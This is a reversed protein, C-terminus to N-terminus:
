DTDLGAKKLLRRLESFGREGETAYTLKGAPDIVLYTPFVGIQYARPMENESTLAITYPHPHESLFKRVVARDEDVSVGIITLNTRHYKQYLKDLSPGDARCAGCWTAWFDLLVTRGKLESLKISEGQLGTLVLEPAAKGALQKKIRDANWAALEKVENAGPPVHFLSEEVAGNYSMRKLFCTTDSQYERRGDDVNQITRSSILLGTLTDAFLRTSGAEIKMIRNGYVRMWPKIPVDIVACEHDVNTLGCPRRDREIAKSLDLHEIDYPGPQPLEEKPSRKRRVYEDEGQEFDFRNGGDFITVHDGAGSLSRERWRGAACDVLISWKSTQNQQEIKFTQSVEFEQHFSNLAARKNQLEKWTQAGNEAAKPGAAISAMVSLLLGLCCSFFRM